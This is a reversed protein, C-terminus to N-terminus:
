SWEDLFHGLGKWTYQKTDDYRFREVMAYHSDGDVTALWGDKSDLWLESQSPFMICPLSGRKGAGAGSYEGGAGFKV